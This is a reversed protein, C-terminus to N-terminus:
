KGNHDGSFWPHELIEAASPRKAPDYQLIWRILQKVQDAERKEIDPSSEDFLEEMPQWDIMLPEQGERVGGVECNFLKRDPTFYLSSTEWQRYLNDPLPGLREDFSLLHDDDQDSQLESWPVCFLPQGTMFEFILCGFSWIDIIENVQGSLILEPTRLGAPVIAKTPPDAFFFAKDIFVILISWFPLSLHM